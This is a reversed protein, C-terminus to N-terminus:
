GSRCNRCSRIRCNFYCLSTPLRHPHQSLWACLMTRFRPLLLSELVLDRTWLDFPVRLMAAWGQLFRLRAAGDTPIACAIITLPSGGAPHATKTGIPKLVCFGEGM